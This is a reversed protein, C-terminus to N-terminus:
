IQIHSCHNGREKGTGLLSPLPYLILDNIKYSEVVEWKPRLLEDGVAANEKWNWVVFRVIVGRQLKKGLFLCAVTFELRMFASIATDQSGEGQKGASELFLCKREKCIRM